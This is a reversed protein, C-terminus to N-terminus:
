QVCFENGEVDHLVIWHEGRTDVEQVEAAGLAILEDARKRVAARREAGSLGTGVNVDLHVRNKATKGEPVRQFFLRPLTGQPDVLASFDDRGEQPWDVSDLYATWDAFGEPPPQEVYGLVEAWFRALRQPERADFTVQFGVTM